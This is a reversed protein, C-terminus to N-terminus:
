HNGLVPGPVMLAVLATKFQGGLFIFNVVNSALIFNAGLYSPNELLTITLREVVKLLNPFM